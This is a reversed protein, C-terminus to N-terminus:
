RQDSNRLRPRGRRGRDVLNWGSPSCSRGSRELRYCGMRGSNVVPMVAGAAKLAREIVAPDPIREPDLMFEIGDYGWEIAQRPLEDINGTLVKVIFGLKAIDPTSSFPVARGTAGDPEIKFEGQLPRKVPRM